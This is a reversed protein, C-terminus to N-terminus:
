SGILSMLRMSRIAATNRHTGIRQRLREASRSSKGITGCRVELVRGLRPAKAQVVPWPGFKSVRPRTRRKNFADPQPQRFRRSALQVLRVLWELWQHEGM